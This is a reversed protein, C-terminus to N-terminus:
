SVLWSVLDMFRLHCIVTLCQKPKRARQQTVRVYDPRDHHHAHGEPGAREEEEAQVGGRGRSKCERWFHQRRRRCVIPQWAWKICQQQFLPISGQATGRIMQRRLLITPSSAAVHTVLAM